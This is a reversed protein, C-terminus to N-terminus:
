FTVAGEIAPNYNLLSNFTQSRNIKNKQIQKILKNM